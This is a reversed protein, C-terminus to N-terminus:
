GERPARDGPASAALLDVASAMEAEDAVLFGNEGSMIIENAAGEPFAIVPTGCALAEVMVMGFPEVWRIPMLLARAREFLEKTARGGVEGVYSIRRGDLLPEVESAFFAEQGPQIPGALVLPLNARRAAAIARHPGKIEAMRGIWLLYGDKQARLPWEKAAIPNPIM